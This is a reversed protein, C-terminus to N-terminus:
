KGENQKKVQKSVNIFKNDWLKLKQHSIKISGINYNIEDKLPESSCNYQEFKFHNKKYFAYTEKDENDILVRLFKFNLKKAYEKSLKLTKKGYGKHRFEDKLGFFALWASELDYKYYYLGTIGIITNDDYIIFFINKSDDNLSGIYNASGNKGPFIENQLELAKNVTLETVVELKLM